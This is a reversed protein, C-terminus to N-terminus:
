KNSKNMWKNIVESFQQEDEVTGLTGNQMYITYQMNYSRDSRTSNNAIPQVRAYGIEIEQGTSDKQCVLGDETKIYFSSDWKILKKSDREVRDFECKILLRKGNTFTVYLEGPNAARTVTADSYESNKVMKVFQKEAQSIKRIKAEEASLIRRKLEVVEM